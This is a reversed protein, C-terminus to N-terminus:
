WENCITTGSVLWCLSRAVRVLNSRVFKDTVSRRGHFDAVASWMADDHPETLGSVARTHALFAVFAPDRNNYIVAGGDEAGSADRGEKVWFNMEEKTSAFAERYLQEFSRGTALSAGEWDVVALADYESLQPRVISSYEFMEYFIAERSTSLDVSEQTDLTELTSIILTEVHPPTAVVTAVCLALSFTLLIVAHM